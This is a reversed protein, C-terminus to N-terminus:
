PTVQKVSMSSIVKKQSHVLRVNTQDFNYVNGLPTDEVDM